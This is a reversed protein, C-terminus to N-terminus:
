ANKKCTFFAFRRTNKGHALPNVFDFANNQQSFKGQTKWSGIINKFSKANSQGVIDLITNKFAFFIPM